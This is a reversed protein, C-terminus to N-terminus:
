NARCTAHQIFWPWDPDRGSLAAPIGNNVVGYAYPVGVLYSGQWRHIEAHGDAFSIGCGGAHYAAPVDPFVPSTAGIQLYGDNLTFMSEDCFIFASAPTPCTLDSGKHYVRWGLNYNPSTAPLGMQGNMSRSRIRYGNASPKFDAPCRYVSIDRNVYPWLLSTAYPTVNTNADALSWNELSQVWGVGSVLHNPILSDNNDDRYMNAGFQMQRLSSLCGASPSKIKARALVPLMFCALLCVTAVVALLEVLTFAQHPFSTVFNQAQKPRHM